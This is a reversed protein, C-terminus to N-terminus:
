KGLFISISQGCTRKLLFGKAATMSVHTDDGDRIGLAATVWKRKLQRLQKMQEDSRLLHQFFPPNM